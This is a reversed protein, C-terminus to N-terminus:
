MFRSKFGGLPKVKPGSRTTASAILRDRLSALGVYGIALGALAVFGILAPLWAYPGTPRRGNTAAHARLGVSM